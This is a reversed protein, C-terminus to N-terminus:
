EEVRVRVGPGLKEYLFLAIKEPFVVAGDTTPAGTAEGAFLLPGGGSLKFACKPATAEFVAGAPLADLAPFIGRAIVVGEANRYFGYSINKPELIKEEVVFEGAPTPTLERGHAVPMEMALALGAYVRLRHERLTLVLSANDPTLQEAAPFLKPEPPPSLAKLVAKTRAEREVEQPDPKVAEQATVAAEEVPAESLAPTDAALLGMGAALGLLVGAAQSVGSCFPSKVQFLRRM